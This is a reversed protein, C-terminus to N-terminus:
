AAQSKVQELSEPASPAIRFPIKGELWRCPPGGAHFYGAFLVALFLACWSCFKPERIKVLGFCCHKEGQSGRFRLTTEPM